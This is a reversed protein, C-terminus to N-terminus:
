SLVRAIQLQFRHDIFTSHSLKNRVNVDVKMGLLRERSEEKVSHKLDRGTKVNTYM